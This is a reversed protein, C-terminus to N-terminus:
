DMSFSCHCCKVLDVQLNQKTARHDDKQSENRKKQETLQSAHDAFFLKHSENQIRGRNLRLATRLSACVKSTLSAGALDALITNHEWADPGHSETEEILWDVTM